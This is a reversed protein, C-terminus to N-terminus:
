NHIFKCNVSSDFVASRIRKRSVWASHWAWVGLLVPGLFGELWGEHFAGAEEIGVIGEEERTEASIGVHLNVCM